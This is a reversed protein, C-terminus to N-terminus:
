PYDGSPRQSVLFTPDNPIGTMSGFAVQLSWYDVDNFGFHYFFLDGDKGLGEALIGTADNIIKVLGIGGNWYWGSANTDGSAHRRLYLGGDPMAVVADGSADTSDIQTFSSAGPAWRWIGSTGRDEFIAGNVSVSLSIPAATSLRAWGSTPSWRWTGRQATAINIGFLGVMDGAADTQLQDPLNGTLLSWGVTPTWRWTGVAGAEDFRGLFADSGPVAILSADLTSIQMWGTSSNWRWVGSTGFDGYLNGSSTVGYQQVTLNSLHAWSATSATWRWLGDSFRGFVDGSDDVTLATAQLNSLHTWGASTDYRWVGDHFNGAVTSPVLRDELTELHPRPQNFCPRLM